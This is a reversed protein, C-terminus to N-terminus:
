LAGNESANAMDERRKRNDFLPYRGFCADTLADSVVRTGDDKVFQFWLAPIIAASHLADDLEHPATRTGCAANCATRRLAFCDCEVGARHEENPCDVDM